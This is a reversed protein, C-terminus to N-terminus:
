SCRYVTLITDVIISTGSYVNIKSYHRILIKIIKESSETSSLKTNEDIILWVWEAGGVEGERRIVERVISLPNIM